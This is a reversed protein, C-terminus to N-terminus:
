EKFVLSQLCKKLMLARPSLQGEPSIIMAIDKVNKYWVDVRASLGPDLVYHSGQDEVAAAFYGEMRRGNEDKYSGYFMERGGIVPTEGGQPVLLHNICPFFRFYAPNNAEAVQNMIRFFDASGDGELVPLSAAPDPEAVEGGSGYQKDYWAKAEHSKLFGELLRCVVIRSGPDKPDYACITYHLADGGLIGVEWGEPISMRATEDEYIETGPINEEAGLGFGGTEGNGAKSNCSALGFALLM